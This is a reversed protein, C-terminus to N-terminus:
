EVKGLQVREDPFHERVNKAFPRPEALTEAYKEPSLVWLPLEPVDPVTVTTFAFVEVVTKQLGVMIPTSPVEVHIAVTASLVLEVNEKFGVPLIVKVEEPEAISLTPVLQVKDPTVFPIAVQETMNVPREDPVAITMPM